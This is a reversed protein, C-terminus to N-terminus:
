MHCSNYFIDFLGLVLLSITSATMEKDSRSFVAKIKDKSLKKTIEKTAIFGYNEKHSFLADTTYM